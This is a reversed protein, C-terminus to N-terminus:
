KTHHSPNEQCLLCKRDLDFYTRDWECGCSCKWKLFSKKESIVEFVRNPPIPPIYCRFPLILELLHLKERWKNMEYETFYELRVEYRDNKILISSEFLVLEKQKCTIVSTLAGCIFRFEQKTLHLWEIIVKDKKVEIKM